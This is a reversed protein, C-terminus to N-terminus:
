NTSYKHLLLQLFKHLSFAFIQAFFNLGCIKHLFIVRGCRKGFKRALKNVFRVLRDGLLIIWMEVCGVM